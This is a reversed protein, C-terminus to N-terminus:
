SWVKVRQMDDLVASCGGRSWLTYERGHWTRKLTEKILDLCKVMLIDWHTELFYARFRAKMLVM